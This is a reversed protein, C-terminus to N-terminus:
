RNCDLFDGGVLLFEHTEWREQEKLVTLLGQLCVRVCVRVCLECVCGSVCVRACM